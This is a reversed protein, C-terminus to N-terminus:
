TSYSPNLRFHANVLVSTGSLELLVSNRHIQEAPLLGCVLLVHTSMDSWLDPVFLVAMHHRVLSQKRSNYFLTSSLASNAANIASSAKKKEIAPGIDEFDSCFQLIPEDGM